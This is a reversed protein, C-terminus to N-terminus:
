FIYDASWHILQWYIISQKEKWRLNVMKKTEFYERIFEFMDDGKYMPLWEELTFMWNKVMRMM